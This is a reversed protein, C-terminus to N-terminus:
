LSRRTDGEPDRTEGERKEDWMMLRPPEALAAIEHVADTLHLVAVALTGIAVILAFDMFFALM